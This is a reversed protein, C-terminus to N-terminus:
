KGPSGILAVILYDLKQSVELQKLIIKAGWFKDRIM